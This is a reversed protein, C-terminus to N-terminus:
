PGNPRNEPVTMWFDFVDCLLGSEAEHRRESAEPALALYLM